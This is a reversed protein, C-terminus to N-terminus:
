YGEFIATALPYKDSGTGAAPLDTGSIFVTFPSNWDENSLTGSAKESLVNAHGDFYSVTPSLRHYSYIYNRTNVIGYNNMYGTSKNVSELHFIVNSPRRITDTTLNRNYFDTWSTSNNKNNGATNSRYNSYYRPYCTMTINGNSAIVRWTDPTGPCYMVSKHHSPTDRWDGRPQRIGVYEFINSANAGSWTATGYISTAIDPRYALGGNDTEYAFEGNAITKQNVMCQIQMASKRAKGLAPLLISILISIISIVVLLEILTFGRKKSSRNEPIIIWNSINNNM